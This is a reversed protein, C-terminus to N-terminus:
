GMQMAEMVETMTEQAVKKAQSDGHAIITKVEDRHNEYYIRRERIQALEDILRQAMQRKHEVCGLKGAKCDRKVQALTDPDFKQHYAFVVCGEPHGPDTKRVRTPDTYAQMVKKQIAEPSDSLFICNDMSKSMKKNDLGPLRAFKTLITEPEPFVERYVYNFRRALERCIEVHPAQDEGVPVADAKYILIDAAQLVPYGLHGFSMNAELGLDRAQEKVTPNRQLRAVTILMSFVLYLEAHERVHSQVFLPSKEPDLGASLWDIVVEISNERIEKTTEPATTLMHWDAVMHFSHYTKQLEIWNELAGVYNGLHLRGTPRMGSLIRKKKHNM